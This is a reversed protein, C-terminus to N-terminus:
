SRSSQQASRQQRPRSSEPEEEEAEEEEAGEEEAGKESGQACARTGCWSGESTTVGHYCMSVCPFVYFCVTVHDVIVCPLMM